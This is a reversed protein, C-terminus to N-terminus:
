NSERDWRGLLRVGGVKYIIGTVFNACHVVVGEVFGGVLIAEEGM